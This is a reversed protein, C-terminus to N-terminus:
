PGIQLGEVLVSDAVPEGAANLVPLREGTSLLYLGIEVAYAGPPADSDVRVAYRDDVAEGPAWTSTARTGSVPWSDVQGHVQGDPGLLHVFVTYDEVMTQLAQWGLRVEVTGGPTTHATQLSAQTLLLRGDFNYAGEAAAQGALRIPPLACGMTVPALWGCQSPGSSVPLGFDPGQVPAILDYRIPALEGPAWAALSRAEGLSTVVAGSEASWYLTVSYRSGPAVSEPADYGLLWHGDIQARILHAPRPRSGTLVSVPAVASWGNEAAAFPPFLGVELTYAGPPVTADIPLRYFDTVTEGARWANTPYLGGVPVSGANMWVVAGASDVLRLNVLLNEAIVQEAKWDLILDLEGQGSVSLGPSGVNQAYGVLQPTHRTGQQLPPHTSIGADHFPVASVEALPGVSRLSYGGGLNPLYRGLYVTQGAAVREDLAARYSAEDPLVVIDLDARHGEAVQLYVLPAIKQSDALIVAGPALPQSLMLEGLRQLAWAQSQDVLPLGRWVLSLPLLGFAAVVACTAAPAARPLREALEILWQVGFGMLVAALLHLPILFASFDPDPVNFALAFFLYGLYTLGLVVVREFALGGGIRRARAILAVVGAAALALGAWGYEQVIKGGVIEFRGVDRLPLRWDFAGKAEGGSLIDAFRTLTLLEGHNVAPWRVPLYLYVSLGLLVIAAGVGVMRMIERPKMQTRSVGSVVAVVCAPAMVLTTLHNTLSLGFVACLWYLRRAFRQQRGAGSKLDLLRFCINMVVAVFFANLAYAEIATARSWLTPSVGFALGALLAVLPSVGLRRALREVGVAALAGFFASTLNARFALTGGVPLLTFLRGVLMLLPYGSGHAIGLRAIGVQFEFTDAEGVAPALTRLYLGFTIIFVFISPALQLLQSNKANTRTGSAGGKGTPRLDRIVKDPSFPAPPNSGARLGDFPGGVALLGTLVVAGVLLTVSRLPNVDPAVVAVVSIALALPAWEANVRRAALSLGGAGAAGVV